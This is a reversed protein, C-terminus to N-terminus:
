NELVPYNNLTDSLREVLRKLDSKDYIAFMDNEEFSGDRSGCDLDMVFQAGNEEADNITEFVEQSGSGDVSDLMDQYIWDNTWTDGKEYLGDFMGHPQYKSYVIGNPLSLFVKRNVIRM